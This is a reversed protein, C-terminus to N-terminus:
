YTKCTELANRLGEFNEQRAALEPADFEDEWWRTPEERWGGTMFKKVGKGMDRLRVYAPPPNEKSYGARMTFGNQALVLMPPVTVRGIKACNISVCICHVTAGDPEGENALRSALSNLDPTQTGPIPTPASVTSIPAHHERTSRRGGKTVFKAYTYLWKEGWGGIRVRVEYKSLIPIERVFLFATGGLPFTGCVDKRLFLAFNEIVWEFRIPDLSKAYSSNSLHMNFDSDDLTARSFHSFSRTLPNAGVPTQNDLWNQATLARQKGSQLKLRWQHLTERLRFAFFVPLVRYHWVLPFSGINLLVLAAAVWKAYGALPQVLDLAHSLRPDALLSMVLARRSASSM